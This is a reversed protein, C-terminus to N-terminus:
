LEHAPEAPLASRAPGICCDFTCPGGTWGESAMLFGMGQHDGLTFSPGDFVDRLVENSASSVPCNAGAASSGTGVTCELTFLKCVPQGNLIEASHVLCMSTAFSTGAVLNAYDSVLPM